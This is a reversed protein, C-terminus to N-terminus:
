SLASAFFMALQTECVEREELHPLHGSSSFVYPPPAGLVRAAQYGTDLTFVSDRRGWGLWVPLKVEREGEIIFDPLTRGLNLGLRLEFLFQERAVPGFDIADLLDGTLAEQNQVMSRLLAKVGNKGTLSLTPGVGPFSLARMLVNEVPGFGAPAILALAGIGDAGLLAARVAVYGGLSHGIVIAPGRGLHAIVDSVLAAYREPSPKEHILSSEGSGPLDIACVTYDPLFRPLLPGWWRWSLGIGHLFVLLPGSGGVVANISWGAADITMREMRLAAAVRETEARM